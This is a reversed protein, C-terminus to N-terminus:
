SWPNFRTRPKLTEDTDDIEAEAPEAQPQAPESAQSELTAVDPLGSATLAEEATEPATFPMDDTADIIIKEEPATVTPAPTGTAETTATLAGLGFGAGIGSLSYSRPETEPEPATDPEAQPAPTIPEAKEFRAQADDTLDTIGTIVGGGIASAEQLVPAVVDTVAESADASIDELGTSADGVVSFTQETAQKITEITPETASVMAESAAEVSEVVESVIEPTEVDTAVRDNSAELGFPVYDSEAEPAATEEVAESITEDSDQDTFAVSAALGTAAATLMGTAVNTDTQDRGNVEDALRAVAETMDPEDDDTAAEIEEDAMVADTDDVLDEVVAEAEIEEAPAEAPIDPIGDGDIDIGALLSTIASETGRAVRSAEKTMAAVVSTYTGGTDTPTASLDEVSARELEKGDKSIIVLENPEATLSVSYGETVYILANDDGETWKLKGRETMEALRDILKKTSPHLM